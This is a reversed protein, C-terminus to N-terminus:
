PCVIYCKQYKTRPRQEITEINNLGHCLTFNSREPRKLELNLDYHGSLIHNFHGISIQITTFIISRSIFDVLRIMRSHNKVCPNTVVMKLLTDAMFFNKDLSFNDDVPKKSFINESFM